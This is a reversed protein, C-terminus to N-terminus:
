NMYVNNSPFLLMVEDMKIINILMYLCFFRLIKILPFREHKHRSILVCVSIYDNISPTHLTSASRSSLSNPPKSGQDLACQCQEPYTEKELQSGSSGGEM